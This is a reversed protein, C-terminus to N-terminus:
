ARAGGLPLAVQQRQSLVALLPRRQQHLPHRLLPPHQPPLWVCAKAPLRLHLPLPWVPAATGLAPQM